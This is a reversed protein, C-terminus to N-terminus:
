SAHRINHHVKHGLNDIDSRISSVKDKNQGMEFELERQRESDNDGQADRYDSLLYDGQRALREVQKRRNAIVTTRRENLRTMSNNKSM